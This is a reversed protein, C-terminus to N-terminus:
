CAIKVCRPVFPLMFCDTSAGITASNIGQCGAGSFWTVTQGTYVIRAGDIVNSEIDLETNGCASIPPLDQPQCNLRTSPFITTASASAVFVFFAIFRM